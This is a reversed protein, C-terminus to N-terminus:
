RDVAFKFKADFTGSEGLLELRTRCVYLGPAIRGSVVRTLDISNKGVDFDHVLPSKELSARGVLTGLIDFVWVDMVANFDGEPHLVEFRLKPAGETFSVPNPTVHIDRLMASAPMIALDVEVANNTLDGEINEEVPTLVFSFTVDGYDGPDTEWSMTIYTNEGQAVGVTVTSENILTGTGTAGRRIELTYPEPETIPAGLNLARVEVSLSEGAVPPLGADRGEWDLEISGETLSIDPLSDEPMEAFRAIVGVVMQAAGRVMGMDLIGSTDGVTHYYPNVPAGKLSGRSQLEEILM